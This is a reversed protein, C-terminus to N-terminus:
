LWIRLRNKVSIESEAARKALEALSDGYAPRDVLALGLLRAREVIRLGAEFRQQGVAFEISFGRIVGRKLLEAVDQGDRTAPLELRARLHQASDELTLGGGGTRALPRTRQHQINVIVDSASIDGFAGAQFSERFGPLKAENGYRIAVGEVIGPQGDVARFELPTYRYELTAM